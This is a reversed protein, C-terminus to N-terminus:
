DELIFAALKDADEILQAINKRGGRNDDRRSALHLAELRMEAKEKESMAVKM